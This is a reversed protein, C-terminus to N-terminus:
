QGLLPMDYSFLIENIRLIDYIEKIICYEIILDFKNSHSLTYGASALLIDTEELDLRIAIALSLITKKKPIYDENSRIKSFLKRDMNARKYVEVDTLNKEDIFRFLTSSFDDEIDDLMDDLSSEKSPKALCPATKTTIFNFSIEFRRNEDTHEKVYNDDIYSDIDDQLKRSLIFAKRDFLVLFVDMDHKLLFKSIAERAVDIAERKPYNYIGSSILPFAISKCKNQYALKLSNTYASFLLQKCREKNNEDYIPGVAHIIYKSKLDFGSTIVAEGVKIPSLSDCAEKLRERGAKSFIAGCVGGGEKLYPDAANVIADVKMETIDNRVLLLPM